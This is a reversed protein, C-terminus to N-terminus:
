KKRPTKKAPDDKSKMDRERSNNESGVPEAEARLEEELFDDPEEEKVIESSCSIGSLSLIIFLVLYAFRNM